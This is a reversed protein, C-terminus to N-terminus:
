VIEGVGKATDESHTIRASGTYSYPPQSALPLDSLPLSYSPPAWTVMHRNNGGGKVDEGEQVAGRM